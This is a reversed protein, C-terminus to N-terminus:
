PQLIGPGASQRSLLDLSKPYASTPLGEVGWKPETPRPQAQAQAQCQNVSQHISQNFSM